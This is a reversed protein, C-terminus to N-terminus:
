RTEAELRLGLEGALGIRSALEASRGQESAAEFAYTLAADAALLRLADSREGRGQAVQTLGELAAAALATVPDAYDQDPTSELLSIIDAALEPPADALRSRLWARTPDDSM